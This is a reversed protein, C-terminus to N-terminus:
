ALHEAEVVSHMGHVAIAKGTWSAPTSPSFDWTCAVVPSGGHLPGGSLRNSAARTGGAALLATTQLFSRRKM